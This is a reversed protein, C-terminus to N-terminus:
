DKLERIKKAPSGVYIANDELDKTVVSCAGVVVGNGVSVDPLLVSRTGIWTGNGVSVKANFGEGARRTANGIKHSGTVCTVCPALDCNDGIVVDGNGELTFNRGIWCDNGIKLTSYWPIMIPSVVKTNKGVEIGECCNLLYQKIKWAHTGKCFTNVFSLILKKKIKKFINM